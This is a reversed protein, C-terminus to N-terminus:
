AASRRRMRGVGTITLLGIVALAYSSPEPVLLYQISNLYMVEAQEFGGDISPDAFPTADAFFLVRGSGPAIQNSEIGAIIPLGNVDMTALSTAYPGLNTFIGSGYAAMYTQVGFPGNFIPHSPVEITSPQLGTVGDDEIQMGFPLVMSKAAALSPTYGESIIMASGGNSVFSFLANQEAVTLPSIGGGNQVSAIVLVDVGSLFGPTLTSTGVLTSGPFHSFLSARAMTTVSGDLFNTAGARSFNFTGFTAGSAAIPQWACLTLIAALACFARRIPTHM